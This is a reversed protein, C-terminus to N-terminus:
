RPRALRALRAASEAVGAPVDLATYLEHAEQWLRAAEEIEGADGKFVALSRIANALDLPPAHEHSRYIALAEHYCPEALAARGADHHVDGLHRVTHALRLPADVERFIAVAEEYHRRAADGDPLRRELEGLNRLAQALEARGGQRRLIAVAELLDCRADALRGETRAQHARRTFHDAANSSEVHTWGGAPSRVWLDGRMDLWAGFPRDVKPESGFRLVNGDPDEIQMEYAWRYNTPPHRIRAGRASYEEFLRESDEVGIWVWAGPNGQDGECLFIGCRGRSVSAFTGPDEWDVKFGLVSVYYDISARLSRVRLIPSIGEFVIAAKTSETESM